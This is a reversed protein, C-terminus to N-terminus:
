HTYQACLGVLAAPQKNHCALRATCGLSCCHLLFAVVGGMETCVTGSAGSFWQGLVPRGCRYRENVAALAKSFLSPQVFQEPGLEGVPAKSAAGPQQARQARSESPAACFEGAPQAYRAAPNPTGRPLLALIVIQTRELRRQLLRM